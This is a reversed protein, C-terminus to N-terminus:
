SQCCAAYPALDGECPAEYACTSSAISMRNGIQGRTGRDLFGVILSREAGNGGAPISWSALKYAGLKGM